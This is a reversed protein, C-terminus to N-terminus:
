YKRDQKLRGNLAGFLYSLNNRKSMM